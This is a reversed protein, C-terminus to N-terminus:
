LATAIATRLFALTAAYNNEQRMLADLEWLVMILRGQAPIQLLPRAGRIGLGGAARSGLVVIGRAGLDRAGAFFLDPRPEDDIAMPWFGHTGRPHGLDGLLRRLFDGREKRGPDQGLMDDGLAYYTWLIRAPHSRAKLTAWKEPCDGPWPACAFFLPASAEAKGAPESSGSM